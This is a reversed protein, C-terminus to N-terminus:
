GDYIASRLPQLMRRLNNRARHLRAKLAGVDTAVATAAEDLTMGEYEVLILVERQLPPLSQVARGVRIEVGCDVSPPDVVAIEEDLSSWRGESRWRKSILNRAVGLLWPRIPGRQDDYRGPTKLLQLFCEQAIDEAIDASGTMRWAFGYVADKNAEFITELDNNTV